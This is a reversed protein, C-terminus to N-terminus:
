ETDDGVASGAVLEGFDYRRVVALGECPGLDIDEGEEAFPCRLSFVRGAEYGLGVGSSTWAMEARM